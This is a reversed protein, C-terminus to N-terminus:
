ILIVIKNGEKSLDRLKANNKHNIMGCLKIHNKLSDKKKVSILIFMNLYNM